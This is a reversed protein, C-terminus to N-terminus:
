SLCAGPVYELVEMSATYRPNIEVPWFRNGRVVGDVGFLGCLDFVDALAAGM